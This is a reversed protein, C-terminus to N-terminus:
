DAAAVVDNELASHQLRGLQVAREVAKRAYHHHERAGHLMGEVGIDVDLLPWFISSGHLEYSAREAPTALALSPYFGTPVSITRGDDLRCSLVEETISFEAIRPPPQMIVVNNQAEETSL